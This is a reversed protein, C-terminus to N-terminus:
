TEEITETNDIEFLRSPHCTKKMLEELFISQRWQIRQISNYQLQAFDPTEKEAVSYQSQDFDPTETSIAFWNEFENKTMIKWENIDIIHRNEATTIFSEVDPFSDAFNSFRHETLFSIMGDKILIIYPEIEDLKYVICKYSLAMLAEASEPPSERPKAALVYMDPWPDSGTKYFNGFHCCSVHLPLIPNNKFFTIKFWSDRLRVCEGETWWTDVGGCGFRIGDIQATSYFETIPEKVLFNMSNGDERELLLLKILRM